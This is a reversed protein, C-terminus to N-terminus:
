QNKKKIGTDKKKLKTKNKELKTKQKSTVCMFYIDAITLPCHQMSPQLEM